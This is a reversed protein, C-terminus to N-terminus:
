PAVVRQELYAAEVNVSAPDTGEGLIRRAALFGSEIAHDTNNYRFTGGRGVIALNAFGNLYARLTDVGHQYGLSYRPYADRSRVIFGGVVDGPELLHLKHVLDDEVRALIQEEPASWVADGEECFLELVLSTRGPPALELSWNRPEHLRAFSIDPEHVYVWTDSSVQPRDILLHATVLNRYTLAQSAERVRAAAAPRMINVLETMPISSVVVDAAITREEGERCAIVDTLYPTRRDQRVEVVRWGLDITGGAVAIQEAMRESIRGYGLRPYMFRDVLSEVKGNSPRLAERIAVDLSLGRGRQVVWDGSLEDCPRGWVKETYRQFFLEYLTRGYQSVYADEMSAGARPMAVPSRVMQLLDGAARMAAVPGVSALANGLRLPYDVSKGRFLIRSTRNVLILEDGLLDVLFQNLEDKKTFWRHGGIDFRYGDREVTRALGGVTPAQEVVHVSWGATVLALGAALGAPGGGLIVAQGRPALGGSAHKGYRDLPM